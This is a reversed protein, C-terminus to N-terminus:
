IPRRPLDLIQSRTLVTVLSFAVLTLCVLQSLPGVLALPDQLRSVMLSVVSWVVGVGAAASTLGVLPALVLTVGIGAAAPSLWAFTLWGPGPLGLGVLMAIPACTALVAVTRLLLLSGASYPTTIVLEHSPDADGGFSAAVGAVPVLPAVLLFMGLGVDRSFMAALGAFMLATTVGVLWGGRMAPVAALLRGTEASVGFRRLVREVFGPAPAEVVDRIAAWTREVEDTFALRNLEARCPDCRMLHAELSAAVMPGISGEVLALLEDRGAHWEARETTM